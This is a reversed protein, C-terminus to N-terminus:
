GDTLDEFLNLAKKAEKPFLKCLEELRNDVIGHDIQSKILHKIHSIDKSRGAMLKMILIDEPGLTKVTLSKGQYTLKMRSKADNPLYITFTQYYPNLWDPAIGLEKAVKSMFPKLTDFDVKLPVADIDVTGGDFGYQLIMAGGGGVILTIHGFESEVLLIDLKKLAKLALQKDM